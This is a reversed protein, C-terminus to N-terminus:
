DDSGDGQVPTPHGSKTSSFDLSNEGNLNGKGGSKRANLRMLGAALIESIEGIGGTPSFPNLDAASINALGSAPGAADYTPAM